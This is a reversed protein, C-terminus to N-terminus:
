NARWRSANMHNRWVKSGINASAALIPSSNVVEYVGGPINRNASRELTVTEGVCFKYAM